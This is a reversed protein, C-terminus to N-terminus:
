QELGYGKEFLVESEALWEFPLKGTFPANGTLTNVVGDGESGPLYAMVFADWNVLEESVELHRGSLLVSVIPKDIGKVFTMVSENDPHSKENILNLSEIDGEMESYPQDGIVMVVVDAEDVMTKDTLVKYGLAEFGEKITVGDTIKSGNDLSGQWEITWGGSQMGIDDIGPGVLLVTEDKKIPLVDDNKLLVMSKEVLTRAVDKAEDSRFHDISQTVEMKPNEFLGMDFKVTLIRSVADDIREESIDGSEINKLIADYAEHWMYPEMLMDVGANISTAVQQEFSGDLAHIAEWDSVVFGNFGLEDKLVGNILESNEHMLVGDLSSYSVMVVPVGLAVLEVYPKMMENLEEDSTVATNGRDLKDNLGTGYETGGDGIFHKATPIVGVEMIGKAYSVSLDTVISADSSFSEYTRGWRHDGVIAVTPSFNWPIGTLLMESGVIKGMEFMLDSDNAAGLGINHPFITAGVVNNHGHVADIGYLLPIAVERESISNQYGNIMRNWASVDDKSPTSGGGSLISGIMIKSADSYSVSSREGQIMQAAKEELTLRSMLDDVREKTSLEVNMYPYSEVEVVEEIEKEQKCGTTIIMLSLVFLIKLAKM